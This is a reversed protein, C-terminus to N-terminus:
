NSLFIWKIKMYIKFTIIFNDKKDVVIIGEFKYTYYVFIIFWKKSHHHQQNKDEFAKQVIQQINFQSAEMQENTSFQPKGQYIDIM